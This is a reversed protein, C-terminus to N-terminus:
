REELPAIMRRELQVPILFQEAVQFTAERVEVQVGEASRLDPMEVLEVLQGEAFNQSPELVGAHAAQGSAATFDEDVADALGDGVVLAQRVFPEGDVAGPVLEAAFRSAGHHKAMDFGQGLADLGQLAEAPQLIFGAAEGGVNAPRELRIMG